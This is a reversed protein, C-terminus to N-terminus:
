QRRVSLMEVGIEECVPISMLTLQMDISTWLTTRFNQNLKTAHDIDFVLPQSGFDRIEPHKGCNYNYM